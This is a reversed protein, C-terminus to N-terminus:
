STALSLRFLIFLLCLFPLDKHHFINWRFFGKRIYQCVYDIFHYFFFASCVSKNDDSKRNGMEPAEKKDDDEELHLTFNLGDSCTGFYDEENDSNNQREEVSKNQFQNPTLDDTLDCCNSSLSENILGKNQDDDDDIVGMEENDDNVFTISDENIRSKALSTSCKEVEIRTEWEHMEAGEEKNCPMSEDGNSTTNLTRANTVADSPLMRNSSLSQKPSIADKESYKCDESSDDVSVFIREKNDCSKQKVELDEENDDCDNDVDGDDHDYVIEDDDCYDADHGPAMDNDDVCHDNDEDSRDGDEGDNSDFDNCTNDDGCRILNQKDVSNDYALQALENLDSKENDVDDELSNQRVRQTVFFERLDEEDSENFPSDGIGLVNEDVKTESNTRAYKDSEEEDDDYDDDGLLNKMVEDVNSNKSYREDCFDVDKLEAENGLM